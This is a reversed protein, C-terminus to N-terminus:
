VKEKIEKKIGNGWFDELKYFDRQEQQFIHVIVDSYDIIVWQGVNKGETHYPKEKLNERVDDEVAEALTSVHTNSTGSCIVFFSSFSNEIKRLDITVIDVAKHDDLIKVIEKVLGPSKVM